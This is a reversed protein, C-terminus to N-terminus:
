NLFVLVGLLFYKKQGGKQEAQGHTLSFLCLEGPPINKEEFNVLIHEKSM